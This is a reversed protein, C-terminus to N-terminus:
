GADVGRASLLRRYLAEWRDVVRELDFEAAVHARGAGGMALRTAPDLAELRAMADALRSPDRPPVVYGTRGDLVISRAEGVDTTVIARASAAAELLGIPMAESQSSLVYADAAQLLRKVDTRLGLFRVRTGIGLTAALARKEELLRGEGGIVLLSTGAVRAFARFMTAFDKTEDRFSGLALWVFADGVGLEARTETRARADRAYGSVDIGNPAWLGTGPPIAGSREHIAIGERSAGTWADGLRNTLRYALYRRTPREVQAHSSCVIVHSTGRWAHPLLRSMRVFMAAVYLHAHVVDPRFSRLIRAYRVVAAAMREPATVGLTFTEVGAERLWPEFDLFPMMSVVGVAHGRRALSVAADRLQIEAGGRGMVNVVYLVRM